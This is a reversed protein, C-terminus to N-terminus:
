IKYQHKKTYFINDKRYIESETGDATIRKEYYNTAEKHTYYFSSKNYYIECVTEFKENIM